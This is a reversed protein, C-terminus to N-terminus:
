VMMKDFLASFDANFPQPELSTRNAGWANLVDQVAEDADLELRPVM